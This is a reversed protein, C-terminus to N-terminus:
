PAKRKGCTIHPNESSELTPLTVGSRNGGSHSEVNAPVLELPSPHLPVQFSTKGTQQDLNRPELGGPDPFPTGHNRRFTPFQAPARNEDFQCFPRQSEAPDTSRAPPGPEPVPTRAARDVVFRSPRAPIVGSPTQPATAPHRRLRQYPIASAPNSTEPLVPVAERLAFPLCFARGRAFHPTVAFATM